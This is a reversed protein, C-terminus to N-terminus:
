HGVLKTLRALFARGKSKPPRGPDIQEGWDPFQEALIRRVEDRRSGEIAAKLREREVTPIVELINRNRLERTMEGPFDEDSNGMVGQFTVPFFNDLTARQEQAFKRVAEAGAQDAKWREIYVNGANGLWLGLVAPIVVGATWLFATFLPSWSPPQVKLPGELNKRGQVLVLLKGDDADGPNNVLDCPFRMWVKLPRDPKLVPLALTSGTEPAPTCDGRVFPSAGDAGSLKFEVGGFGTSTLVANPVDGSISRLFFSTQNVTGEGLLPLKDLWGPTFRVVGTNGILVVNSEGLEKEAEEKKEEKPPEPKPPRPTDMGVPKRPEPPRCPCRETARAVGCLLLYAVVTLLVSPRIITRAREM